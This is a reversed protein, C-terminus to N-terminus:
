HQIGCCHVSLHPLQSKIPNTPSFDLIQLFPKWPFLECLRSSCLILRLLHGPVRSVMPYWTDKWTFGPSMNMSPFSDSQLDKQSFVQSMSSFSVFSALSLSTQELGSLWPKALKGLHLNQQIGVHHLQQLRTEKMSFSLLVKKIKKTQTMTCSEICPQFIMLGYIWKSRICFSGHKFVAIQPVFKVHLSRRHKAM